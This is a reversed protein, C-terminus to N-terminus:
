DRAEAMLSVGTIAVDRDWLAVPPSAWFGPDTQQCKPCALRGLDDIRWGASIARARIDAEGLTAPDTHHSICSGMECWSIPIRLQDGIAAGRTIEACASAEVHASADVSANLRNAPPVVAATESKPGGDGAPEARGDDRLKASWDNMALWDDNRELM